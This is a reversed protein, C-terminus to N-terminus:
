YLTGFMNGWQFTDYYKFYDTIGTICYHYYFMRTSKGFMEWTQFDQMSRFCFVEIQHGCKMVDYGGCSPCLRMRFAVPFESNERQGYGCAKCMVDYHCIHYKVEHAMERLRKDAAIGLQTIFIIDGSNSSDEVIRRSLALFDCFLKNVGSFSKRSDLYKHAEDIIVSKRESKREIWFEENLTYKFKNEEGGDRHKITKLLEKKVMMEPHLQKIWPTSRPKLPTIDTYFTRHENNDVMEKVASVTKGSGTNGLYLIIPVRCESKKPIPYPYQIPIRM